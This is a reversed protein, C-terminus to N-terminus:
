GPVDEGDEGSMLATMAPTPSQPTILADVVVRASEETLVLRSPIIIDSPLERLAHLYNLLAKEIVDVSLKGNLQKLRRVVLPDFSSVVVREILHNREISRVVAAALGNDRVQDRVNM